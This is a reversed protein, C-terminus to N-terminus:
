TGVERTSGDMEGPVSPGLDRLAIGTVGTEAGLVVFMIAAIRERPWPASGSNRTLFGRGSQRCLDPTPHLSSPTGRPADGRGIEGGAM